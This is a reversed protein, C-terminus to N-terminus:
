ALGRVSVTSSAAIGYIEVPGTPLNMVEGAKLPFGNSSSVNSGGLYVTITADNNRLMTVDNGGVTTTILTAATTVTTAVSSASAM